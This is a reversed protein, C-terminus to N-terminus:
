RRPEWRFWRRTAWVGAVVWAALVLVPVVAPRFSGALAVTAGGPTTGTLGLRLLDVVPTLPLVQALRQVPEPLADLPFMLGSLLLPVAYGPITTVQAMEVTRTLATSAVALLVFVATGLVIAVLVLGPNTPMGMGFVGVAALVGLVIQGWALAVAPASTGALIEADGTEGTRLRKLVLEERRAVLAPVLNIYVVTLLTFATLATVTGAGADGRRGASDSPLGFRVFAVMAVPIVLANLLALPNRRLLLAEARALCAIRRAPAGPGTRTIRATRTLTAASM